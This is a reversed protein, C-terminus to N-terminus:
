MDKERCWNPTGRYLLGLLYVEDASATGLGHAEVEYSYFSPMEYTLDWKFTGGAVGYWPTKVPTYAAAAIATATFAIETTPAALVTVGMKMEDYLFKWSILDTTTTSTSCFVVALEILKRHDLEPFIPGWDQIGDGAANIVLAGIGLTSLEGLAPDSHGIGAGGEITGHKFDMVSKFFTARPQPNFNANQLGM